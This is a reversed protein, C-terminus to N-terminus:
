FTAPDFGSALLSIENNPGQTFGNVEDAEPVTQDRKRLIYQKPYIHRSFLYIYYACVGSYCMICKM